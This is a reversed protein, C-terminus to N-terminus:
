SHYYMLFVPYWCVGCFLYDKQKILGSRFKKLQQILFWWYHSTFAIFESFPLATAIMGKLNRGTNLLISYWVENFVDIQEDSAGIVKCYNADFDPGLLGFAHEYSGKGYEYLAEYNREANVKAEERENFMDKNKVCDAVINLRDEFYDMQGRVDVRLLLALANLYVEASAADSRQLEKWIFHDYVELVKSTPSNGDLYCLAVHWWNHTYMFSSCSTWSPSCEEMFEVAEKFQCNYQLVHCLNHQSWLDSKNIKLGKRAAEQAAVMEGLELLPFALMGYIYNEEQNDPLVQKVLDLSIDPRAMYFCLVQARKLSVLDRPFQKLLKFHLEIAVDDDRDESILYSVVEFVAKEYSTANDLQAKAAALYIPVKSSDSTSLFHAALINALVCKEDCVPGELIVSRMRGYNLVQDYFLNISLICHDSSTTVPYGWKDHKVVMSSNMKEEEMELFNKKKSDPLVSFLLKRFSFHTLRSTGRVLKDM